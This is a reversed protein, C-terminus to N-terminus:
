RCRIREGSSRPWPWAAEAIGSATRASTGSVSPRPFAPGTSLTSFWSRTEWAKWRGKSIECFARSEWMGVARSRTWPFTSFWFCTEWKGVVARSWLWRERESFWFGFFPLPGSRPRRMGQGIKMSMRRNSFAGSQTVLANQDYANSVLTATNTGDTVTSTLLRNFIYLSTYNSGGLYTNTYTRALSGVAGAGFNYAKLTLLNGYQDLTQTTQKDEEYSQGPDLKTVTTGLYPNLSTPTQAWTFDLHSLPTHTSSTREEYTLQLGLNFTASTQFSWYKEANAPPDDLTASSHVTYASDNGRILQIETEAAGASMSLFRNQIENYTRSGSLTNATTYTWRLHACYPTTVQTLQGAGSTGTGPSSCSNTPSTTDYSFYTTLPIGTVTSSALLAVTSFHQSNFPANLAYNETYAFSYNEATGINNTIGTLHPISDTNYTFTYDDTASNRVDQITAIRSSSNTWTVGVGAAYNVIVENGNSDEMLTPYMTGADWETGASTSGMVWFSGDNFHLKNANSDYSVYTSEQSTWVGGSNQTLHYQAGTADAFIYEVVLGSPANLPLLSGALLKWGYGYGVDAGLQWTGAPDQRWNQSNYALNFGVGWGGRGMAKLIPTTYNLNGSLMDIQEGGGGWYSGTPRVGTERPDIAGAPPTTVNISVTSGNLDFDYAIIM